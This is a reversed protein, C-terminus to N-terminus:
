FEFHALDIAFCAYLYLSARNASHVFITIDNYHWRWSNDVDSDQIYKYLKEIWHLQMQVRRIFSARM